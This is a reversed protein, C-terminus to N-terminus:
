AGGAVARDLDDAFYALVNVLNPGDMGIAAFSGLLSALELLLDVPDLNDGLDERVKEHIMAAADQLATNVDEGAYRRRNERISGLFFQRDYHNSTAVGRRAYYAQTEDDSMAM